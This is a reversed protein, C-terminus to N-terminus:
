RVERIISPVNLSRSFGSIPEVPVRKPRLKGSFCVYGSVSGRSSVGFARATLRSRCVRSSNTGAVVSFTRAAAQSWNSTCSQNLWPGAFGSSSHSISRASPSAQGSRGIRIRLVTFSAVESGSPGCVHTVESM